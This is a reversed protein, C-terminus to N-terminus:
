RNKFTARVSKAADMTVTCPGAGSCAGSWGTFAFNRSPTATLTVVTGGAFAESCDSGCDIGAPASTVAGNGSKSVTLTFSPNIAFPLGNSPGGGPAPNVVTVQATGATAIDGAAIAATLQTSSVFTTTRAAGNWQVVSSPLFNSGSVTLTFAAGGAPASSPALSTLAPVPNADDDVITLVAASPSGLAAGGTAGTLTLNVTENGEALTDNQIAVTVPKSVTDGDAFTITQSLATYDSGATATGNSTALTVSV